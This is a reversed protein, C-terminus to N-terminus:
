SGSAAPTVAFCTSPLGPRAADLSTAARALEDSTSGYTGAYAPLLANAGQGIHLYADLLAQWTAGRVVADADVSKLAAHGAEALKAAQSALREAPAKDGSADRAAAQETLSMATALDGAATCMQTQGSPGFAPRVAIVVAAMVAATVIAILIRV